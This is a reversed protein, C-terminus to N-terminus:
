FRSLSVFWNVGFKVIFSILDYDVYVWTLVLSRDFVM